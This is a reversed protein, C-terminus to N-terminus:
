DLSSLKNAAEVILSLSGNPEQRASKKLTILSYGEARSYVNFFFVYTTMNCIVYYVYICFIYAAGNVVRVCLVYVFVTIVTTTAVRAHSAQSISLSPVVRPTCMGWSISIVGNLKGDAFRTMLRGSIVVYPRKGNLLAPEKSNLTDCQQWLQKLKNFENRPLRKAIRIAIDIFKIRKAASLLDERGTASQLKVKLM